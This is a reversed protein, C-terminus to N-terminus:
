PKQHIPTTHDYTINCEYPTIRGPQESFVEEYKNLLKHFTEEEKNNLPVVKDNENNEETKTTINTKTKVTIQQISKTQM